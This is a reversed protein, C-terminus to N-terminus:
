GQEPWPCRGAPTRPRPLLADPWPNPFTYGPDSVSRAERVRRGNPGFVIRQVLRAGNVAGGSILALRPHGAGDRFMEVRFASDESGHALVARRVVGRADRWETLAAGLPPCDPWSRHHPRTGRTAQIAAARDAVATEIEGAVAGLSALLLLLAAAVGARLPAVKATARDRRADAPSIM